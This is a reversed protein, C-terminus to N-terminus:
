AEWGLKQLIARWREGMGDCYLMPDYGLKLYVKLAPLRWDDTQLRIDQYGAAILRRTAAACVALGLGKGKHDPDAAVWGLEGGFPHLDTPSHTAMATAVLEGSPKHEVVFLGDCLLKDRWARLRDTFDGFGAKAMLALYAPEDGPRFIRLEYGAPVTVEPPRKMRHRPWTMHLQPGGDSGEWTRSDPVGVWQGGRLVSEQSMLGPLTMDMAQHIGVPSEIEGRCARVFDQIMFYDGGGHGTEFTEPPVDLYNRPLFRQALEDLQWFARADSWQLCNSLSRLYIRDTETAARASEYAGDTGQLQYNTLAHPRNSLLDVRIQIVAGASTKCTMVPTMQAYERGQPDQHRVSADECSVRTVRDGSMWQLVPGLSHTGYTVGALGVQWRRRWTTQESLAKVEHLYEGQAYYLKGFLGQRCLERVLVNPRMYTYNEGMMYVADSSLAAALLTRCEDVSVAAPVESLVHIGRRLAAVSQTVHLNMPTAVILADLEARDLMEECDLYQQEGGVAAAAQELKAPETDCVAVIDGGAARLPKLFHAGRRAGVIGVRLSSSGNM